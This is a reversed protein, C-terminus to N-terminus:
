NLPTTFIKGLKTDVSPSDMDRQTWDEKQVVVGAAPSVQNSADRSFGYPSLSVKQKTNLLNLTFTRKARDMGDTQLKVADVAAAPDTTITPEGAVLEIDQPAIVIVSLDAVGESSANSLTIQYKFLASIPEKHTDSLHYLAELDNVQSIARSRHLAAGDRRAVFSSGALTDVTNREL